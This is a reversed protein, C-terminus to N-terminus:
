DDHATIKMSSVINGYADDFDTGFEFTITRDLNRDRVLNDILVTEHSLLPEDKSAECLLPDAKMKEEIKMCEKDWELYLKKIRWDFFTEELELATPRQNPNDDWCRKMMMEYCKPTGPPLYDPRGGDVLKIMQYQRDEGQFPVKGTAIQWMLMGFCFIDSKLTPNQQKLVEPSIFPLIGTPGSYSQSVSLQKVNYKLGIQEGVEKVQNESELFYKPLNQTESENEGNTVTDALRTLGFDNIFFSGEHERQSLINGYHLDGHIYGVKHFSSLACAINYVIVLRKYWNIQSSYKELYSKLDEAEAYDCVMLYQNFDPSHPDDPASPRKTIGQIATVNTFHFRLMLDVERLFKETDFPPDKPGKMIVKMPGLGIRGKRWVGKYVIGEGGEKLKEVDEFENWDIWEIWHM